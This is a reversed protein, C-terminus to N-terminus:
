RGSKTIIMETGAESFKTWLDRNDLTLVIGSNPTATLPSSSSEEIEELDVTEDEMQTIINMRDTIDATELIKTGVSVNQSAVSQLPNEEKEEWYGEQITPTNDEPSIKISM